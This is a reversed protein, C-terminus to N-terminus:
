PQQGPHDVGPPPTHGGDETVTPPPAGDGGGHRGPGHDGAGPGVGTVQLILFVVVVVGVVIGSVKM